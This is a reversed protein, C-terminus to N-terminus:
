LRGGKALEPVEGFWFYNRWGGARYSVSKIIVGGALKTLFNLGVSM